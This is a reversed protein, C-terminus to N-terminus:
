HGYTKKTGARGTYPNVNGKSSFNNTKSGDARSRNSPAVRNGNRKSYGDVHSAYASQHPNRTGAGVAGTALILGLALIM